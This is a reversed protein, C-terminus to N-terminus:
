RGIQTREPAHGQDLPADAEMFLVFETEDSTRSTWLTRYKVSIFMRSNSKEANGGPIRCQFNAVGLPQIDMAIGIPILRGLTLATGPIEPKANRCTPRTQGMAFIFSQNKVKIPASFASIERTESVDVDPEILIAQWVFAGVALMGFVLGIACQTPHDRIEKWRPLRHMPASAM